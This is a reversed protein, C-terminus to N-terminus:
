AAGVLLLSVKTYVAALVFVISVGLYIIFILCLSLAVAPSREYFSKKLRQVQSVLRRFLNVMTLRLLLASLRPQQNRNAFSILHICNDLTRLQICDLLVMLM